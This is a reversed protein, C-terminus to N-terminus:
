THLGLQASKGVAGVLLLIGILALVGENTPGFFGLPGLPAGLTSLAPHHVVAFITAYDLSKFVSYTVFMALALGVDGVRNVIMAKM